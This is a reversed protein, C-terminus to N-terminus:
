WKRHARGQMPPAAAARAKGALPAPKQLEAEVRSVGSVTGEGEVLLWEVKEKTIFNSRLNLCKLEANESMARGLVEAGEDTIGNSDLELTHLMCDHGPQADGVVAIMTAIARAGDDGLKNMSFGLTRLRSNKRLATTFFEMGAGDIDNGGLGLYEMADNDELADALEWAGENGIANVGLDLHALSRNCRLAEALAECGDVACRNGRMDLLQLAGEPDDMLARAIALTGDIGIGNFRVDLEVISSGPLAAALTRAGDNGFGNNRVDLRQLQRAAGLGAGIVGLQPEGLSQFSLDLVEIFSEPGSLQAMLSELEHLQPPCSMPPLVAAGGGGGGGGGGVAPMPVAEHQEQYYHERQQRNRELFWAFFGDFDVRGEGVDLQAMADDIEADNLRHGMLEALHFFDYRDVTGLGDLDIRDFEGRVVRWLEEEHAPDLPQPSPQDPPQELMPEPQAQGAGGGVFHRLLAEQMNELSPDAVEVGERQCIQWADDASLASIEQYYDDETMDAM